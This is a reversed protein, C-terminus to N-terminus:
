GDIKEAEIKSLDLIDNIIALLSEANRHITTLYERQEEPPREKSLLLEAFGTIAAMPTRIEHSMNALFESKARDAMEAATKARVLEQEARVREREDEASQLAFALDDALEGLLRLEEDDFAAPRDAYVVIAGFPCNGHIMPVAAVSRCGRALAPARWPAFAPDTATDQCVCTRRESLAMGIPGRGTESEDWTITVVDLYDAAPGASAMPIVRKSDPVNGGIWVLRYGRTRVLTECAEGLLSEKNRERVILEGIDRISRLVENLHQVQLEAHKRETIDVHCGLMRIPTGHEDRLAEGKAYIWRYSGDKHRLQFEVAYESLQGDFYGQLAQLVREHDDPALRSGWEQRSDEIEDDRYGIQAKWEPSFHAEGTRVDWDWLGINGSRLATELRQTADVLSEEARANRLAIAAFEGFAGAIEADHDSFGDPKNVLGLLGVATGSIVMPVFLVNHLDLHGEPMYDARQSAALQNEYVVQTTRYAASRLGRIPMPLVPDVTHSRGDADLFLVENETGDDALLGVYGASAGVAETCADFIARAATKFGECELVARSAKLLAATELARQRAEALAAALEEEVRKRDTIDRSEPIIYEVEGDEGVVPKLSFDFYHLDGERSTHTVERRLIEGQAARSVADRLWTRLEASHRWWPTDWFLKGVVDAEREGIFEVATANAATMKGDPSLTGALQFTQNFINRFRLESQRIATEAQKRETIDLVVGILGGISGDPLTFPAKHFVVDRRTGDTREITTEYVQPTNQDYLALDMERYKGAFADPVLDSVTKGIIEEAPRELLAAFAQNCGLYRGDCGKWFVPNPISDILEQHFRSKEKLDEEVRKRDTVDQYTLVIGRVAPDELHNAGVIRLWRWSGDKHHYRLEETKVVEPHQLIEALSSRLRHTDDPHVHEFCDIGVLEKPKWGLWRELSPSEYVIIGSADIVAYVSASLEILSRFWRESENITRNLETLEQTRAAVAEELDEAYRKMRAHIARHVHGVLEQPAGGKEVYAFAGLNVAKKASEYSGRGTHIILSVRGSVEILRNLLDGNMADPLGLDVVGVDFDDRALRALAEAATACGTVDFGEDRLIASLTRLQAQDDEVILVRATVAATPLNREM